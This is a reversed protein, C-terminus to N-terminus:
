RLFVSLRQLLSKIYSPIFFFNTLHTQHSFFETSPRLYDDTDMTMVIPKGHTRTRRRRHKTHHQRRLPHLVSVDGVISHAKSPVNDHKISPLAQLERM